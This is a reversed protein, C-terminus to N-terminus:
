ILGEVPTIYGRLGHGKVERLARFSIALEAIVDHTAVIILMNNQGDTAIDMDAMIDARAGVVDRIRTYRAVLMKRQIIGTIESEIDEHYILTLANMAVPGGQYSVPVPQTTALVPPQLRNLRPRRRHYPRRHIM